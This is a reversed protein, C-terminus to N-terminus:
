KEETMMESEGRRSKLGTNKGLINYTFKLKGPFVIKLPQDSYIGQQSKPNVRVCEIEEIEKSQVGPTEWNSTGNLQEVQIPTNPIEFVSVEEQSDEQNKNNERISQQQQQQFSDGVIIVDSRSFAEQEEVMCNEVEEDVVIVERQHHQRVEENMGQQEQVIGGNGTAAGDESKLFYFEPDFKSLIVPETDFLTELSQVELISDGEMREVQMPNEESYTERSTQLNIHNAKKLTLSKFNLHKHPNVVYKDHLYIDEKWLCNELMLKFLMKRALPSSSLDPAVRIMKTPKPMSPTETYKKNLDSM